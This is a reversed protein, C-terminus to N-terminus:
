HGVLITLSGATATASLALLSSVILSKCSIIKM